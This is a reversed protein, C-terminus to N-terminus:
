QVWREIAERNAWSWVKAAAVDKTLWLFESHECPNLRIESTTAPVCVRFWHEENELVEPSYRHRWAPLIPYRVSQKCDQLASEPVVLGTEEQLERLAAQRPSEGWELSGTVSQWFEEQQNRKLLLVELNANFVLVLVSVPRKFM